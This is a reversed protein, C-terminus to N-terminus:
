QDNWYTHTEGDITIIVKSYETHAIPTTSSSEAVSMAYNTYAGYFWGFEDDAENNGVVAYAEYFGLSDGAPTSISAFSIHNHVGDDWDHVIFYTAYCSPDSHGTNHSMALSSIGCIAFILIFFLSRKM